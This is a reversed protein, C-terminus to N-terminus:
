WSISDYEVSLSKLIEYLNADGELVLWRMNRDEVFMKRLSHLLGMMTDKCDAVADLVDLYMVYSEETHTSRTLACYDQLGLFAVAIVSLWGIFLTFM